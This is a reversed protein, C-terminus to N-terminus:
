SGLPRFETLVYRGDKLDQIGQAESALRKRGVPSSYAAAIASDYVGPLYETVIDEAALFAIRATVQQGEKALKWLMQVRPIHYRASLVAVHRWGNQRIITICEALNSYTNVSRDEAIVVPAPRRSPKIRRLFDQRYVAAETPVDPGLAARTKESVGTSFVFTGAVNLEYLVVAAVIRIQGALMGFEDQDRYTVPQYEGGICRISSCLVIVADYRSPSVRFGTGNSM